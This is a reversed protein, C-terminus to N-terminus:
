YNREQEIGAPLRLMGHENLHVRGLGMDFEGIVRCFLLQQVNEVEEVIIVPTPHCYPVDVVVSQRINIERGVAFPV